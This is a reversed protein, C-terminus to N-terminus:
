FWALAKTKEPLSCEFFRYLAWTRSMGCVQTSVSKYFGRLVAEIENATNVHEYRMLVQYDLGYRLRFEAGTVATGLRWLWTGENPVAIRLTGEPALLATSRAVLRPLDEIHEFTAVSTIRDYTLSLPIESIDKYVTRIRSLMPSHAYLAQFPEVIDYTNVSREYYLQNLTGAGIELTTPNNKQPLDAAVKQHMWAELKQAISTSHYNGQRNALSHQEYLRVYAEPLIPRKKPFREFVGDM